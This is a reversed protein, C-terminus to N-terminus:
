ENLVVAASYKINNSVIDITKIYNVWYWFSLFLNTYAQVSYNNVYGMCGFYNYEIFYIVIFIHSINNFCQFIM